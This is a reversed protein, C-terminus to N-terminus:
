ACISHDQWFKACHPLCRKSKATSQSHTNKLHTTFTTNTERKHPALLSCHKLTTTSIITWTNTDESTVTFTRRLHVERRRVSLVNAILPTVIQPTEPKRTHSVPWTHGICLSTRAILRQPHDHSNSTTNVSQQVLPPTDCLTPTNKQATHIEVLFERM